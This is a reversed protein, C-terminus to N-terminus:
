AHKKPLSGRFHLLQKIAQTLGARAAETVTVATTKEFQALRPEIEAWRAKADMGALHIRVRIDDRLTHLEAVKNKLETKLM